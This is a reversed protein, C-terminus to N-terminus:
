LLVFSSGGLTAGCADDDRRSRTHTVRPCAFEALPSGFLDNSIVREAPCPPERFPLFMEHSFGTLLVLFPSGHVCGVLPSFRPRCLCVYM